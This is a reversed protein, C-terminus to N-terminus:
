ITVFISLQPYTRAFTDVTEIIGGISEYMIGKSVAGTWSHSLHRLQAIPLQNSTRRSEVAQIDDALFLILNELLAIGIHMIHVTDHLITLSAEPLAAVVIDERHTVRCTNVIQSRRCTKHYIKSFAIAFDEDEAHM